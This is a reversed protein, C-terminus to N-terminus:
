HYYSNFFNGMPSSSHPLSSSYSYILYQATKINFNKILLNSFPRRLLILKLNLLYFTEWYGM